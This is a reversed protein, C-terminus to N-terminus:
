DIAHMYQLLRAELLHVVELPAQFTAQFTLPTSATTCPCPRQAILIDMRNLRVVCEIQFHPFSSLFPLFPKQVHRVFTHSFPSISSHFM